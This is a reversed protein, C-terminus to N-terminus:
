KFNYTIVLKLKKEVGDKTYVLVPRMTVSEGAAGAEAGLKGLTFVSGNVEYYVVQGNGWAAANGAKNVWYGVNATPMDSLSGDSEENFVVIKGEKAVQKVNVVPQEILESIASVPVGFFDAVTKEAIDYNGAIWEQDSANVSVNLTGVLVGNTESYTAQVPESYNALEAGELTIAYPFQPDNTEDEDWGHSMYVEPSGQVVLFLHETGAPVDFSLSGESDKGVSGYTRKEGSLAVFGYRWGMNEAGGCSNYKAPKGIPNGDGDEINSKDSECLAEGYGLGRFNVKVTGANAVLPIVNFGTAGPCNEYAIQYEGKANRVFTPNYRGQYGAAYERVGAIDYTAMKMAYDFLEERTRGYDNGNYLRTYTMIADEPAYSERWLRGYSDIGHKEVWYSQLWYSAYRQFEHHFHRHCNDLWVLYNYSEFQEVPYDQFSQWQACQEWYACGGNGAGDPGVFGYRWGHNNNDDAGQFLKDCYTQYQFSHGIEHAITSGVPHCTAPTVWLAGITNDYGSGTAVWDEPTPDLLYIQMKYQDLYSKGQGLVSMGLREINTTFFQEAKDLLDNVDVRQNAPVEEGNPDDGFYPDWFVFFHESQASRCFSMKSDSRLIRDGGYESNHFFKEYDQVEEPELVKIEGPVQVIKITKTQDLANLILNVSREAGTSNAKANLVLEVQGGSGKEPSFTLWSAPRDTELTWIARSVFNITDVAVDGDLTVVEVDDMEIYSGSFVEEDSKCSNFGVALCTALFAPLIYRKM